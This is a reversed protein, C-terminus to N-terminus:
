ALDDRKEAALFFEKTKEEIAMLDEYMRRVPIFITKPLLLLFIYIYYVKNDSRRLLSPM